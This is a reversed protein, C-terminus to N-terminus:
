RRAPLGFTVCWYRKGDEAIACAVGIQSFSGLINRKHPPSDMWGKMLRPTTFRGHAINEGVRFYRYQQAKVRVGVTSGDSGTHAMKGQAAMDKAHAEAAAQLRPSVSFPPLKAEARIRNHTEIVEARLATLDVDAEKKQVSSRQGNTGLKTHDPMGQAGAHRGSTALWALLGIACVRRTRNPMISVTRFVGPEITLRRNCHAHNERRDDISRAPNSM